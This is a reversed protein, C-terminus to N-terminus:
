VVQGDFEAYVQVGRLSRESVALDITLLTEKGRILPLRRNDDVLLSQGLRYGSM